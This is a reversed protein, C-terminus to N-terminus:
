PKVRAAIRVAGVFGCLSVLAPVAIPDVGIQMALFAVGAVGGIPVTAGALRDASRREALFPLRDDARQEPTM